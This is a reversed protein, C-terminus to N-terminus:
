LTSGKLIPFIYFRMDQFLKGAITAVLSRKRTLGQVAQKRNIEVLRFFADLDVPFEEVVLDMKSSRQFKVADSENWFQALPSASISDADFVNFINLLSISM